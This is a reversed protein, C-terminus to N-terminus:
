RQRTKYFDDWLWEALGLDVQTGMVKIGMDEPYTRSARKMDYYQDFTCLVKAPNGRVVSNSPIDNTIVSGATVIVYDGIKVNYQIKAGAAIFVNNGIEICGVSERFKHRREEPLTSSYPNLILQIGDHTNFGVGSSVIVNDGLKILNPYLPVTRGMFICNKGISRFVHHERLYDARRRADMLTWLRLTHKLREGNM